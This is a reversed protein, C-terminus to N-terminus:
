WPVEVFEWETGNFIAFGNQGQAVLGLPGNEFGRVGFFRTLPGIRRSGEGEIEWFLDGPGALFIRGAFHGIQNLNEAPADQLDFGTAARGKLLLGNWGCFWLNGEDDVACDSILHESPAVIETSLDPHLLVLRGVYDTDGGLVVAEDGDTAMCNAMEPSGVSCLLRWDSAGDRRFIRGDSAAVYLKGSHIAMAGASGSDNSNLYPRGIGPIKEVRMLGDRLMLIYGDDTVMVVDVPDALSAGLCMDMPWQDDLEAQLIGEGFADDRILLRYERDSPEAGEPHVVAYYRQRSIM